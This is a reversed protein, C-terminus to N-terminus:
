ILTAWAAARAARFEVATGYHARDVMPSGLLEFRHQSLAEAVQLQRNSAAQPRRKRGKLSM